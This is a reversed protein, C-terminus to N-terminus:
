QICRGRQHYRDSLTELISLYYKPQAEYLSHDLVIDGQYSWGKALLEATTKARLATSSIIYSPILDKDKILKGM